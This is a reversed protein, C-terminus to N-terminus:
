AFVVEAAGFCGGYGSAFETVAQQVDAREEVASELIQLEVKNFEM